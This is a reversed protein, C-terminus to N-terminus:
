ADQDHVRAAGRNRALGAVIGAPGDHTPSAAGSLLEGIADLTRLTNELLVPSQPVPWSSVKAAVLRTAPNVYVMQGYIGLCLLVDGHTRPSFWFQNRYWGGPFHPEADSQAFAERIDSDVAWSARLWDAPVVQVDGVAGGDLLMLGFRALDGVTACVGGDHVAAGTADCCIEADNAAGLPSWILRSLLEAMPQGAAQECAWGLVDTECSRYRFAGGHPLELTLTTLYSYMSQAQTDDNPRWGLAKEILRVESEPDTYAESFRVGSRMDLLDRVRAGAYGSHSLEPVYETVLSEPALLGQDVLCGAVCSIMSKSVSMLLHQTDAATEGFYREHVVDGEHVIVVGDTFTTELIESVSASGGQVLAVDLEGIPEARAGLQLIPGDGRSIPLVPILDRVHSFAWRNYPPDQWNSLTPRTWDAAPATESM